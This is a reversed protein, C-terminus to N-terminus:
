KDGKEASAEAIISRAFSRGDPGRPGQDAEREVIALVRMALALREATATDAKRMTSNGARNYAEFVWHLVDEATDLKM